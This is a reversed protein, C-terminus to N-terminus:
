ANKVSLGCVMIGALVNRLDHNKKVKPINFRKQVKNFTEEDILVEDNRRIFQNQVKMMHHLQM